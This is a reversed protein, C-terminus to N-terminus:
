IKGERSLGYVFGLATGFLVWLLFGYANITLTISTGIVNRAWLPFIVIYFIVGVLVGYLLGLATTTTALASRTILPTFIRNAVINNRTLTIAFNVFTNISSSVFYTFPVAFIVGLIILALWNTLLSQTGVIVGLQYNGWITTIIGVTLVAAIWGKLMHSEQLKDTHNM